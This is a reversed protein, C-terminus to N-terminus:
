AAHTKIKNLLLELQKQYSPLEPLIFLFNEQKYIHSLNNRADIIDILSLYHVEDIIKETFLSKIVPKPSNLIIGHKDELFIKATKWALEVCIEFKQIMGNQLTDAEDENYLKVDLRISKSFGTVTKEFDSIFINLRQKTTM